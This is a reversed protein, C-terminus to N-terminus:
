FRNCHMKSIKCLPTYNNYSMPSRLKSPLFPFPQPVLTMKLNCCAVLALNNKDAAHDEGTSHLLLDVQFAHAHVQLWAIEKILESGHCAEMHKRTYELFLHLLIYRPMIATCEINKIQTAKRGPACPRLMM